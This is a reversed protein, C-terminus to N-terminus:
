VRGVRVDKIKVIAETNEINVALQNYIVTETRDYDKNFESYVRTDDVMGLIFNKPNALWIFTGENVSGSGTAAGTTTTATLGLEALFGTQAANGAVFAISAAAGAANTAFTIRGQGDDKITLAANTAPGTGGAGELEARIQFALQAATYVGGDITIVVAGLADVNIQLEDNSGSVIEYPGFEGAVVEAATPDGVTVALRSPIGPVVMVPFGYPRLTNGKLADDGGATERQAVKEQWDTAAARSMIWRLDPDQLYQEPMARIADAFLGASVGGGGASILQSQETLVDFGDFTKLLTALPSTGATNVNGQIALLELDTSIRKSMMTMMVDEFSGGEINEQLMETSVSWNSKLKKANLELQDFVPRGTEDAFANSNENIGATVPEGIYMKDLLTRSTSMSKFRIKGLLVSNDKVLKIFEEQQAPNLQGGFTLNASSSGAPPSPQQTVTKTVLTENENGM